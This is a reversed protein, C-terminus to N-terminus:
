TRDRRRAELAIRGQPDRPDFMVGLAVDVDFSDWQPCSGDMDTETSHHSSRTNECQSPHWRISVLPLMGERPHAEDAGHWFRCTRCKGWWDEHLRVSDDRSIQIPKM